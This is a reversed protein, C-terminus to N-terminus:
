FDDSYSPIFAQNWGEIPETWTFTQKITRLPGESWPVNPPVHYFFSETGAYNTITFTVTGNGNNIAAANGFGGV